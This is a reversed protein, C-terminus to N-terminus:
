LISCLLNPKPRIMSIVPENGSKFAFITNSPYPSFINNSLYAFIRRPYYRINFSKTYKPHLKEYNLNLNLLPAIATFAIAEHIKIKKIIIFPLQLKKTSLNATETHKQLKSRM